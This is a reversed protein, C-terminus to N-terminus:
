KCETRNANMPGHQANAKYICSYEKKFIGKEKRCKSGKVSEVRKRGQYPHTPLPDVRVQWGKLIKM